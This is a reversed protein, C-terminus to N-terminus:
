VELLDLFSRFDFTFGADKYSVNLPRSQLLRQTTQELDKRTNKETQYAVTYHDYPFWILVCLSVHQSSMLLPCAAAHRHLCPFCAPACSACQHMFIYQLPSLKCFCYMCYWWHSMSFQPWTDTQAQKMVSWYLLGASNWAVHWPFLNTGTVGIKKAFALFLTAAEHGRIHTSRKLQMICCLSKVFNM